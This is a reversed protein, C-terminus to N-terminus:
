VLTGRCFNALMFAVGGRLDGYATAVGDGGVRGGLLGEKDPGGDSADFAKPAELVGEVLEGEEGFAGACLDHTYDGLLERSGAMGIQALAFQFFNLGQLALKVVLGDDYVVLKGRGLLANEFIPEFCLDDVACGEDEVNEGGSGAGSFAAELDLKSLVFIEERPERALPLVEFPEASSDAGSAGALGLQLGVAAENRFM